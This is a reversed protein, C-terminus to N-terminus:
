KNRLRGQFIYGLVRYILKAATYSAHHAGPLPSFEVCDMGVIRHRAALEKIFGTVQWWDLGGPEPTGTAPMISSDLGDVDLTLYVPGHIEDLVKDVWRPDSRVVSMTWPTLLHKKAFQWEERSISRIGVQTFPIGQEFLRRMVCAHSLPDDEYQERLDLHADIQVVHLDPFYQRCAVVAPLTVTHEGGLLVPFRKKKLVQDVEAGIIRCAEESPLNEVMLPPPTHIGICYTDQFLEDDFLELTDSAELIAAPGKETGGKWSVTNALSASLIEVKSEEGGWGAKELFRRYETM